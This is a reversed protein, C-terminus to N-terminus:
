QQSSYAIIEAIDTAAGGVWGDGKRCLSEVVGKFPILEIGHAEILELEHPEFVKAHVFSFRWNVGNLIKNRMRTKKESVFKKDVWANVGEELVDIERRTPSNRNRANLKKQQEPTLASIYSIPRFSVQVEIHRAELGSAGPRIALLDIEDRGDKMGRITFYRDRNLWEDVLQEAFLAM